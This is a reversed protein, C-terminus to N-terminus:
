SVKINRLFENLGNPFDKKCLIFGQNKAIMLYFNTKTEIIKYLKAYEIKTTGCPNTETFNTEYFEYTVDTNQLVKNTKFVKKTQTTHLLWIVTPYLIVFFIFYMNKLIIGDIALFATVLAYIIVTPKNLLIKRSFKKYEEFTNKTTTKYLSNM